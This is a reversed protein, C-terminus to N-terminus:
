PLGAEAQTVMLVLCFAAGSGNTSPFSVVAQRGVWKGIARFGFNWVPNWIIGVEKTAKIDLRFNWFLQRAHCFSVLRLFIGLFTVWKTLLAKLDGHSFSNM